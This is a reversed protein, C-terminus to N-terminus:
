DEYIKKQLKKIKRLNEFAAKYSNAGFGTPHKFPNKKVGSEKLVKKVEKTKLKAM